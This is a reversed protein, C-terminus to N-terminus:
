AAFEPSLVTIAYVILGFDPASVGNLPEGNAVPNIGTAIAM